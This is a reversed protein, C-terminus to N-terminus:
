SRQAGRNREMWCRGSCLLVQTRDMDRGGQEGGTESSAPKCECNDTVWQCLRQDGVNELAGPRFRQWPDETFM